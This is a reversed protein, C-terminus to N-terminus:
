FMFRRMSVNIIFGLAVMTVVLSSGGYSLLPLPIGAVPLVGTVMAVNIVAQWVIIAIAGFALLAGLRDRARTVVRFALLVMTLYLGLLIVCGFFGWEEAFVSFVFDTHQAPLFDLRNQTGGLYGKGFLRGSGIAIKSQIVHYGTGLRDVDPSLFVQLRAQQYPKLFLWGVPLLAIGGLGLLLLSRIRLMGMLIISMFILFFIVATGLDPQVMILFFLPLALAFPVWLDRLRYGEEPEDEQLAKALVLVIALKALESPQLSFIGLNIWRQSGGGVVGYFFVWLLLLLVIGYCPYAYRDILHYDFTFTVVMLVTGLILWYVQKLAMPNSGNGSLDRTASYITLVGILAIGIALAFIPWDFHSALRRDFKM